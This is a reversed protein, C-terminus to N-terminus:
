TSVPRATLQLELAFETAVTDAFPTAVPAPAPLATIVAVLSPFLPVAAIATAWTGTPVTVTKGDGAVTTAVWVVWNVAVTFSWFPVTTVSRVTVQAVLLGVIAVTEVLPRTRPTVGPLAVIVAVLPPFLPEVVTVTVGTGTAVTVTVGDGAVTLFPDFTVSVAIKCSALPLVSPRVPRTTVHDDLSVELAVTEDVPTTCPTASPVATIVAVDSPLDPVEV